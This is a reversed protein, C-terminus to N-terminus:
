CDFLVISETMDFTIASETFGSQYGAPLFGISISFKFITTQKVSFEAHGSADSLCNNDNDFKALPLVVKCRDSNGIVSRCM